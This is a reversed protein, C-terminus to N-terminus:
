IPQRLEIPNTYQEPTRVLEKPKFFHNKHNKHNKLTGTLYILASCLLIIGAAPSCASLLFIMSISTIMAPAAISPPFLRRRPKPSPSKKLLHNLNIQPELANIKTNELIVYVTTAVAMLAGLFPILPHLTAIAPILTVLSFLMFVNSSIAVFSVKKEFRIREELAELYNPNEIHLNKLIMLREIESISRITMLIVDSVQMAIGIIGRLTLWSSTIFFCLAIGGVFWVADTWLEYGRRHTNMYAELRITWPLKHKHNSMWPNAITEKIISLLNLTLRPLFFLWSLHLFFPQTVIELANVIPRCESFVTFLLCSLIFRRNRISALRSLNTQAIFSRLQQSLSPQLNPFVFPLTELPHQYKFLISLLIAKDQSMRNIDDHEDLHQYIKKLLTAMKLTKELEKILTATDKPKKQALRIVHACYVRYQAMIIARKRIVHHFDLPKSEITEIFAWDLHILYPNIM